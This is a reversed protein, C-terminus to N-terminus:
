PMEKIKKMAWSTGFYVAVVAGLNVFINARPWKKPALYHYGLPLAFATVGATLDRGTEPALAPTAGLGRLAECPVCRGFAM